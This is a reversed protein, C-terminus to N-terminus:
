PAYVTRCRCRRGLVGARKLGAGRDTLPPLPEPPEAQIPQQIFRPDASETLDCIALHFFHHGLRQFRHRGATRVPASAQHGFLGTQRLGRNDPDPM